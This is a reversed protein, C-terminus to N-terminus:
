NDDDDSSAKNSKVMAELEDYHSLIFKMKKADAKTPVKKITFASSEDDENSSKRKKTKPKQKGEDHDDNGSNTINGSSQVKFNCNETNHSDQAKPNKRNHKECITCHRKEYKKQKGDGNNSKQQNGNKGIGRCDATTHTTSEPHNSCSGPPYKGATPTKGIIASKSDTEDKNLKNAASKSNLPVEAERALQGPRSEDRISLLNLMSAMTKKEATQGYFLSIELQFRNNGRLSEELILIRTNEPILLRFNLDLIASDSLDGSNAISELLNVNITAPAPLPGEGVLVATKAMKDRQLGLVMAWKKLASQLKIWHSLFNQGPKLRIDRATAEFTSTDSSGKNVFYKEIKQFAAFFDSDELEESCINLAQPGIKNFITGCLKHKQALSTASKDLEKLLESYEKNVQDIGAQTMKREYSACTPTLLDEKLALYNWSKEEIYCDILAELLFFNQSSKIEVVTTTDTVETTDWPAHTATLGPFYKEALPHRVDAAGVTRKGLPFIELASEFESQDVTVFKRAKGTSPCKCCTAGLPIPIKKFWYILWPNELLLDTYIGKMLSHAKEVVIKNNVKCVTEFRDPVLIKSGRMPLGCYTGYIIIDEISNLRMLARWQESYVLFDYASNGTFIPLYNQNNNEGTKNSSTNNSM